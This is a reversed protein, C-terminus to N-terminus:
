QSEAWKRPYLASHHPQPDIFLCIVCWTIVREHSCPHSSPPIFLPRPWQSSPRRQTRGMKWEPLLQRNLPLRSQWGVRRLAGTLWILLNRWSSETPLVSQLKSGVGWFYYYFFLLMFVNNLKQKGSIVQSSFFLVWFSIPQSHMSSEGCVPSSRPCHSGLLM